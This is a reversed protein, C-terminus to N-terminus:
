AASLASTARIGPGIPAPTMGAPFYVGQHFKQGAHPKVATEVAVFPLRRYPMLEDLQTPDLMRDHALLRRGDLNTQLRPIELLTAIPNEGALMLPQTLALNEFFAAFFASSVLVRDVLPPLRPSQLAVRLADDRVARQCYLNLEMIRAVLQHLHLQASQDVHRPASAQVYGYVTHMIKGAEVLEFHEDMAKVDIPTTDPHVESDMGRLDFVDNERIAAAIISAQGLIALMRASWAGYREGPPKTERAPEGAVPMTSASPKGPPTRRKGFSMFDVRQMYSMTAVAMVSATVVM